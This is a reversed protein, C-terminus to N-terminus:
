PRPRPGHPRNTVGHRSLIESATGRHLQYTSALSRVTGGALYASVLIAQDKKSLHVQRQRPTPLRPGEALWPTGQGAVVRHLRDLNRRTEPDSLPNLLRQVQEVLEFAVTRELVGDVFVTLSRQQRPRQPSVGATRTLRFSGPV